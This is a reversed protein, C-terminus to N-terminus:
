NTSDVIYNFGTNGLNEVDEEPPRQSAPEPIDVTPAPTYSQVFSGPNDLISDFNTLIEDPKARGQTGTIATELQTVVYNAADTSTFDRTPGFSLERAKRQAENFLQQVSAPASQNVVVDGTDTVTFSNEFYPSLGEAIERRIAKTDAPDAGALTSFDLPLADIPTFPSASVAQLKVRVDDLEEASTASSIAEVIAVMSERPDTVDRDTGMGEVLINARVEPDIDPLQKLFSDLDSVFQPDAKQNSDYKDLLLDLQGSRQLIIASEESLGIGVAKSIRATTEKLSNGWTGVTEFLAKQRDALLGRNFMDIDHARTAAIEAERQERESARVKEEYRREASLSLARGIGARIGASM